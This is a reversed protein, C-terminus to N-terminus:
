DKNPVSDTLEANIWFSSLLPTKTQAPSKPPDPLISHSIRDSQPRVLADMYESKECSLHVKVRADADLVQRAQRTDILVVHEEDLQRLTGPQICKRRHGVSGAGAIGQIALGIRIRSGVILDDSVM